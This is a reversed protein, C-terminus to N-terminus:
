RSAKDSRRTGPEQETEGTAAPTQAAVAVVGAIVSLSAYVLRAIGQQVREVAGAPGAVLPVRRLFHYPIDAIELHTAGIKGTGVLVADRALEVAGQMQQVTHKDM